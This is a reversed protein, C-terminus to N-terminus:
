RQRLASILAQNVAGGMQLIESHLSPRAEATVFTNHEVLVGRQRLGQEHAVSGAPRQGLYATYRAWVRQEGMAFEGSALAATADLDPPMSIPQTSINDAGVGHLTCAANASVVEHPLSGTFVFLNIVDCGDWPTDIGERHLAIRTPAQDTDVRGIVWGRAPAPLTPLWVRLQQGGLHTLDPVYHGVVDVLSPVAQANPNRVM